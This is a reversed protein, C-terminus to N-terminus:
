RHRHTYELAYADRIKEDIQFTEGKNRNRSKCLIIAIVFLVALLMGAVICASLTDSQAAFKLMKSRWNEIEQMNGFSSEGNGDIITEDKVDVGLSAIDKEIDELSKEMGIVEVVEGGLLAMARPKPFANIGPGQRRLKLAQKRRELKALETLFSTGMNNKNPGSPGSALSNMIDSMSGRNGGGRNLTIVGSPGAAGPSGPLGPVGLLGPVGAGGKAGINGPPGRVGFPGAIGQLGKPGVTGPPGIVQPGAPGGTGQPGATGPPGGTGPPAGTGPPGGTGGPGGTGTPGGTGPPGVTGAPGGTGPPGQSGPPGQTGPPGDITVTPLTTSSLVLQIVTSILAIYLVITPSSTQM